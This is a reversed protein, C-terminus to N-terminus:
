RQTREGASPTGETALAQRLRTLARSSQSKVTGVSCGLVSATQVETLDEFYRLVLVARQGRPLAALHPWLRLRETVADLESAGSAGPRPEPPQADPLERNRHRRWWSISTTVMARRVYAEAAEPARLRGWHVYSTALAAQVLDEAAQRQGTLLYAFRYLAAYRASVFESFSEDSAGRGSGDM